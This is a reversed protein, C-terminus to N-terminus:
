TYRKFRVIGATIFLAAFGLLIGVYPLVDVLTSGRALLDTYARMAWTSPLVRVVQRYLPPTVELPYWAGGLAAMALSLGLVLSSAQGRSRVVTALLMGLGVIALAFALSVLGVALPDSGWSVGFLLAGGVLLLAIQVLGLALRALLKGVLITARSTPCVLMRKLTGRLREDVLVEAVGLLTIQVWTVLQGASAQETSTAMASSADLTVGNLWRVEAVAPPEGAAALVDSLVESSFVRAEEASSVVEAERAQAVGMQVALAAGGVRGQAARVAQEVMVSASDDPLVHLTLTVVEGSILGDTFGRPIELGFEDEPLTSVLEPVLNVGLLADLLADVVPGKDAQKVYIPITVEDITKGDTTGRLGVGIAATFLLPLILFFLLSIPTSFERLFETRVLGWLRRM